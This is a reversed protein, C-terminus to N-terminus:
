PLFSLQHQIKLESCVEPTVSFVYNKHNTIINFHKIEIFNVLVSTDAVVILRDWEKLM